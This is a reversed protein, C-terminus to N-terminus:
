HEKTFFIFLIKHENFHRLLSVHYDIGYGLFFFFLFVFFFIGVRIAEIEEGMEIETEVLQGTVVISM